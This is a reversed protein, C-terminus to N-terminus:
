EERLGPILHVTIVGGDPDVDLVVEESNPLLIEGGQEDRVAYVDRAGTELIHDLVGLTEGEDTKVTLGILQFHYYRGDPLQPLQELPVKLFRGKLKEAENMDSLDALKLIVMSKHVRTEEVQRWDVQGDPREIGVQSYAELLSPEDMLSYVRLEGRIGHTNVIQGITALEM